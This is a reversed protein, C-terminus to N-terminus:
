SKFPRVRGRPRYTQRGFLESVSSIPSQSVFRLGNDAVGGNASGRVTELTVSSAPSTEGNNSVASAPEGLRPNLIGKEDFHVPSMILRVKRTENSKSDGSRSNSTSLSSKSVKGSNHDGVISFLKKVSLPRQRPEGAGNGSPDKQPSPTYISRSKSSAKRKKTRASRGANSQTPTREGSKDLSKVNIPSAVRQPNMSGVGNVSGLTAKSTARPNIVFSTKKNELSSVRLLPVDQKREGNQDEAQRQRM